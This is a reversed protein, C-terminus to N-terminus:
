SKVYVLEARDGQKRLGGWCLRQAENLEDLMELLDAAHPLPRGDRSVTVRVEGHRDALQLLARRRRSRTRDAAARPAAASRGSVAPGLHQLAPM